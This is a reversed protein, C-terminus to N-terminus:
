AKTTTGRSRRKNNSPAKTAGGTGKQFEKVARGMSGALKPLRTAGFLLLIIALVILLEPMGFGRLFGM